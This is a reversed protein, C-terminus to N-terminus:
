YANKNLLGKWVTLLMIKMDFWVSWNEMYFLDYDFRKEMKDLTDTEGRWGNVQAWGTIGPKVKHRWMYSEIIDKYQENLAIPHPRPGVISMNGQLVNVFQPLEDLSTRRLFAGFPTVRPDCKKAQSFEHADECVNMSRFKYVLIVKGDLGYRKQKFIAPGKSTAKIIVAIVIMIPSILFLALVSLAIDSLRKAVFNWGYMQSDTLNILPVGEFDEIGANLTIMQYIDPAIRISVLKHRLKEVVYMLRLHAQIPLAVFVENVNYKDVIDAVENLRGLVTKGAIKYGVPKSDDIYGLIELGTWRNDKIKNAIKEALDGAGVILVYRLNHGKRRLYRLLGRFLLRELSLLTISIVWFYIFILRSFEHVKIIFVIAMLLIVALTSAKTIDFAELLHSSVRRPRYLGMNSFFIPWLILIPILVIMYRANDVGTHFKLYFASVWSVVIVAMDMLLLISRWFQSYRNLM